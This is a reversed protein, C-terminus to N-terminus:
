NRRLPAGIRASVMIGTLLPGLERTFAIAVLGPILRETGFRQLQYGTLLAMDARSLLLGDGGAAGFRSVLGAARASFAPQASHPAGRSCANWPKRCRTSLSGSFAASRACFLASSFISRSGTRADHSTSPTLWPASMAESRGLSFRLSARASTACREQSHPQRRRAQRILRLRKSM